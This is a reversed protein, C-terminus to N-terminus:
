VVQDRVLIADEPDELILTIFSIRENSIVRPHILTIFSIRENSIVRPHILTIFSIRENSIVRPHILTIFSIRENSIVRPHILTIFSIRENSIVRPHILTIFSIRENSIVRPHIQSGDLSFTLDGGLLSTPIIIEALNNTSGGILYFTLMKHQTDFDIDQVRFNSKTEAEFVYGGAHVDFKNVFGVTDPLIQTHTIQVGACLLLTSIVILSAVFVVTIM